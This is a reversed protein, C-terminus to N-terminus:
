SGKRQITLQKTTPGAYFATIAATTHGNPALGNDNTQVTFKGTSQGKEITINRQSGQGSPGGVVANQSDSYIVVTIDMPAKRQLTVTGTVKQLRTGNAPNPRLGLSQVPIPNVISADFSYNQTSPGTTARNITRQDVVCVFFQFDECVTDVLTVPTEIAMELTGQGSPLVGATTWRGATHVQSQGLSLANPEHPGYYTGAGSDFCQDRNYHNPRPDCPNRSSFLWDLEDGATKNEVGWDPVSYSQESSVKYTADVDAGEQSGTFGVDFSQGSTYETESNPTEPESAEWTLKADTAQDPSVDNGIMGTWWARELHYDEPSIGIKFADDMHFFGDSPRKPTVQGDLEYTVIQRNGQPHGDGNDLYVDFSHNFTWSAIQTGPDPYHILAPDGKGATWYGNPPLQTGVVAYTWGVHQLEPPV